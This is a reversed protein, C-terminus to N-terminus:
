LIFLYSLEYLILVLSKAFERARKEHNRTRKEGLVMNLANSIKDEFNQREKVYHGIQECLQIMSSFNTEKLIQNSSKPSTLVEREAQTIDDHLKKLIDFVTVKDLIKLLNVQGDYMAIQVIEKDNFEDQALLRVREILDVDKNEEKTVNPLKEFSVSGFSIKSPMVRHITVNPNTLRLRQKSKGASLRVNSSFMEKFDEFNMNLKRPIIGVRSNRTYKIFKYIRVGDKLLPIGYKTETIRENTLEDLIVELEGPHSEFNILYAVILQSELVREITDVRVERFLSRIASIIRENKEVFEWSKDKGRTEEEIAKLIIRTPSESWIGNSLDLKTIKLERRLKNEEFQDLKKDLNRIVDIIKLRGKQASEAYDKTLQLYVFVAKVATDNISALECSKKLNVIDVSYFIPLTFLAFGDIKENDPENIQAKISEKSLELLLNLHRDNQYNKCISYVKALNVNLKHNIGNGHLFEEFTKATNVLNGYEHILKRLKELDYEDLSALLSSVDKEEYSYGSPLLDSNFLIEAVEDVIKKKSHKWIINVSGHDKLHERYLLELTIESIEFGKTKKLYDRTKNICHTEWINEENLQPKKNKLDNKQSDSLFIDHYSMSLLFKEVVNKYRERNQMIELHIKAQPLTNLALEELYNLGNEFKKKISTLSDRFTPSKVRPAEIEDIKLPLKESKIYNLLLDFTIKSSESFKYFIWDLSIILIFLITLIQIISGFMGLEIRSIFNFIEFTLLALAIILFLTRRYYIEKFQQIVPSIKNRFSDFQAEKDELKKNIKSYIDKSVRESEEGLEKHLNILYDKEDDLKELVENSSKRIDSISHKLGAELKAIESFDELDDKGEKPRLLPKKGSNTKIGGM